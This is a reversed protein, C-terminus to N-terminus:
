CQDIHKKFSLRNISPAKPYQVNYIVGGSLQDALQDAKSKEPM